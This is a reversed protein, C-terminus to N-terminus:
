KFNLRQTVCVFKYRKRGDYFNYISTNGQENDSYIILVFILHSLLYDSGDINLNDFYELWRRVCLPVLYTKKRNLDILKPSM